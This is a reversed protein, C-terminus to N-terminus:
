PWLTEALMNLNIDIADNLIAVEADDFIYRDDYAKPRKLSMVLPKNKPDAVVATALHLYDRTALFSEASKPNAKIKAYQAQEKPTLDKPTLASARVACAAAVALALIATRM